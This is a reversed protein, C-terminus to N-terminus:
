QCPTKSRIMKSVKAADNVNAEQQKTGRGRKRPRNKRKRHGRKSM